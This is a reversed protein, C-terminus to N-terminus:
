PQVEKISTAVETPQDVAVVAGSVDLCALSVLALCLILLLLKKM